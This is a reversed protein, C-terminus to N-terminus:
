RTFNSIVSSVAAPMGGMVSAAIRAGIPLSVFASDNGSEEFDMVFHVRGLEDKEMNCACNTCKVTLYGLLPLVLQGDGPQSCLEVLALAQTDADDGVVYGDVRYGRPKRGMDETAHTEAKVFPHVAIERGSKPLEERKTYFQFGRFSASSLTKTWDRMTM